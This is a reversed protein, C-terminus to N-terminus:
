KSEGEPAAKLVAILDRIIGHLDFPIEVGYLGELAAVARKLPDLPGRLRAIEDRDADIRALLEDIQTVCDNIPNWLEDLRCVNDARIRTVRKDSAPTVDSM